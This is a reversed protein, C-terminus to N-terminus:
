DNPVIEIRAVAPEPAGLARSRKGPSAGGITVTMMGPEVVSEGQENVQAMMGPTITFRVQASKGAKVRVRQFGKLSYRPRDARGEVASLYLQVVEEADHKGANKLTLEAVVSEGAKIKRRSLKMAGYKFTTYSLGFGFPYLPEEKMFRYTRGQMSYEDFPPVQELSKPFTMSLRGSPSEKGFLLDGVAAGGQEGPYWAFLVADALDHAEGLAIPSGGTVILILPKNPAKRRLMRILELQNPPLDIGDRDGGEVAGIVEGSEGEMLPSTGVVAVVADAWEALGGVWDSPSLNPHVLFCGQLHTVRTGEPAAGVIGELVSVLKASVGRYFNGLLVQLDAANPGTVCITRTDRSFPLVGNNKLLVCSKVATERALAIHKACQITKGRLKTYPVKAPDDFEGLRFRVKLLRGAARDIDAESVLGQRLAEALQGTHGDGIDTDCGIKLARASSEMANGTVKFTRHMNQIAGADSTVFGEFGWKERLIEQLLTPSGPCPEGNVANYAAMVSQVGAKVLAEFAPLYTEFLEKRSVNASFHSRLREPGSHAAYHKACGMAKLYRPHDGQLGRVFAAGIAGTLYPDEGYTEQGRGWRPDRFININPTWFTLTAPPASLKRWEADHYKARAEDGIASAIRKVLAVDFTAAMAVTAPFVTARGTHCLGHLCEGGWYYDKMGLREVGKSNASLQAIKEETAMRSLLDAVRAETPLAANRFAPTASRKVTKSKSGM